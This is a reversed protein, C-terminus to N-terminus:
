RTGVLLGCHILTPIMNSVSLGAQEMWQRYEAQSYARGETLTFLAASYLAIPLPGALDDNLFVDHLLVQGGDNMATAAKSILTQCEPVDWDHLINSLIVVDATPWESTFMDAEVFEIRDDVGYHEAFEKAVTLVEPRDMIMARLAANRALYAISYIGSGGGIDLITRANDLRHNEALIPAVNKARGALSLTFHRALEAEEMASPIGDRYIFATGQEEENLGAPQNSRLREVMSVVDPSGAALGVYNSVDFETSPVLHEQATETLTLRGENEAIFGMAKMATILVQFPRTALGLQDQLTQPTHEGKQITGFLDFHAVAATLLQTGYCGRFHEFIPTPNTNPRHQALLMGSSRRVSAALEGVPMEVPKDSLATEFGPPTKHRVADGEPCVTHGELTSWGLTLRALDGELECRIWRTAQDQLEVLWYCSQKAELSTIWANFMKTLTSRVRDAHGFAMPQGDTANDREGMFYSDSRYEHEGLCLIVDYHGTQNDDFFIRFIM